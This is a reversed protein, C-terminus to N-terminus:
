GEANPERNVVALVLMVALAQGLVLCGAILVARLVSLGRGRGGTGSGQVMRSRGGGDAHRLCLATEREACAQRKYLDPRNKGPGVPAFV